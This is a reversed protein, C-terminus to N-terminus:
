PTPLTMHHHKKRAKKQTQEELREDLRVDIDLGGVSKQEPKEDNWERLLALVTQALSGVSLMALYSDVKHLPSELGTITWATM